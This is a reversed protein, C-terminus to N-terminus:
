PEVKEMKQVQAVARTHQEILSLLTTQNQWNAAAVIGSYTTTTSFGAGSAGWLGVAKGLNEARTRYASNMQKNWFEAMGAPTMMDPSTFPASERQRRRAVADLYRQKATAVGGSGDDLPYIWNAFNRVGSYMARKVKQIFSLSSLSKGLALFPEGLSVSPEAPLDEDGIITRFFQAEKSNEKWLELMKELSLNFRDALDVMRNFDDLPVDIASAMSVQKQGIADLQTQASRAAEVIRGFMRMPNLASAFSSQMQNSIRRGFTSVMRNAADLGAKFPATNLRLESWISTLPM